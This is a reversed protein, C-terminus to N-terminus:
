FAMLEFRQFIMNISCLSVKIAGNDLYTFFGVDFPADLKEAPYGLFRVLTQAASHFSRRVSM